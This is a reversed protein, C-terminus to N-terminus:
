IVVIFVLFLVGMVTSTIIKSTISSYLPIVDFWILIIAVIGLIGVPLLIYASSKNEAALEKSSRYVSTDKKAKTALAM